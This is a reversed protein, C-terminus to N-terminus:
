DAGQRTVSSKPGRTIADSDSISSAQRYPRYRGGTRLRAPSQPHPAPVTERLQLGDPHLDTDLMGFRRGLGLRPPHRHDLVAAGLNFILPEKTLQAHSAEGGAHNRLCATIRLQRAPACSMKRPASDGTLLASEGPFQYRCSLGPSATLPLSKGSHRIAIPPPRTRGTVDSLRSMAPPSCSWCTISCM